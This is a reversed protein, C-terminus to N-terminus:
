YLAQCGPPGTVFSVYHTHCWVRCRERSRWQRFFYGPADLCAGRPGVSGAGSQEVRLGVQWLDATRTYDSRTEGPLAKALGFAQLWELWHAAM